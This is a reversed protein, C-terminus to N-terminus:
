VPSSDFAAVFIRYYKPETGTTFIMSFSGTLQFDPNNSLRLQNFDVADSANKGSNQPIQSAIVPMTEGPVTSGL